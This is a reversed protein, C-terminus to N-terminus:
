NQEDHSYYLLWRPYYAYPDLRQTELVLFCINHENEPHQLGFLLTVTNMRFFLRLLPWHNEAIASFDRFERFQRSSVSDTFYFILVKKKKKLTLWMAKLQTKDKKNDVCLM